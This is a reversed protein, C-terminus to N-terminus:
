RFYDSITPNSILNQNLVSYVILWFCTNERPMFFAVCGCEIKTFNAWCEAECNNQTYNRYFRLQREANFFCQRQYPTYARLKTSTKTLKPKIAIKTYESHPMQFSNGMSLTDGPTSLIVSIGQDSGKCLYELDDKNFKFLEM